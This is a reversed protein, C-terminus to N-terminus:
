VAAVECEASEGHGVAGIEAKKIEPEGVAATATVWELVRLVQGRAETLDEADIRESRVAGVALISNRRAIREDFVLVREAFNVGIADAICLSKEPVALGAGHEHGIDPLIGHFLDTRDRGARIESPVLPFGTVPIEAAFADTKVIRATVGLHRKRDNLVGM